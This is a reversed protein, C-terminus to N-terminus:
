KSFDFPRLHYRKAIQFLYDQIFESLNGDADYCTRHLENSSQMDHARQLANALQENPFFQVVEPFQELLAYVNRGEMDSKYLADPIKCGAACKLVTGDPKTLRYRCQSTEDMAAERQQILHMIVDDYFKQDRAIEEADCSKIHPSM